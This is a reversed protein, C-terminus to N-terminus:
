SGEAPPARRRWLRGDMDISLNGVQFRWCRLEPSFGACEAWAPTSESQFWERVTALMADQRSAIILDVNSGAPLLDETFEEILMERRTTCYRRQSLRLSHSAYAIVVERDDQLQSLDGRVAFLSADTNLVFRKGETPFGLIPARVLCAKLAEFVAQQRDTWVFPAGKQTLAM